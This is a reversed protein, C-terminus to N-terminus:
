LQQKVLQTKDTGNMFTLLFFSELRGVVLFGKFFVLEFFRFSSSSIVAPAGIFSALVLGPLIDPLLSGTSFGTPNFSGFGLFCVLVLLDSILPLLFLFHVSSCSNVKQFNSAFSIPTLKRREYIKQNIFINDELAKSLPFSGTEM